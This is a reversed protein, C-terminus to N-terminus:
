LFQVVLEPNSKKFFISNANFVGKMTFKREPLKFRQFRITVIQLFVDVDLDAIYDM